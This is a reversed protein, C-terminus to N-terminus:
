SPKTHHLVTIMLLTLSPRSRSQIRPSHSHHATCGECWHTWDPFLCCPAVTRDRTQGLLQNGYRNWERSDEACLTLMEWVINYKLKENYINSFTHHNVCTEAEWYIPSRYSFELVHFWFSNCERLILWHPYVRAEPIGIVPCCSTTKHLSIPALSRECSRVPIELCIGTDRRSWWWWWRRRASGVRAGGIGPIGLLQIWWVLISQTPNLLIVHNVIIASVGVSKRLAKGWLALLWLGAAFLYWQV